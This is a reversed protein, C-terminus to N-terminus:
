ENDPLILILEGYATARLDGSSEDIVVEPVLDRALIFYGSNKEHIITSQSPTCLIFDWSSNQLLLCYEGEKTMYRNSSFSYSYILVIDVSDLFEQDKLYNGSLGGGINNYDLKVANYKILLSDETISSRSIYEEGSGSNCTYVVGSITFIIVSYIIIIFIRGRM